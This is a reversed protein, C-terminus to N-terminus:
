KISGNNVQGLTFELLSLDLMGIRLMPDIQNLAVLSDSRFSRLSKLTAM